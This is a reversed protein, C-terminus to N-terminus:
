SIALKLGASLAEKVATVLLEGKSRSLTEGISINNLSSPMLNLAELGKSTLVCGQFQYSAESAHNIYGSTILWRITDRSIRIVNDSAENKDPLFYETVLDGITFSSITIPSPFNDYLEGLAEGAAVNFLDINHM